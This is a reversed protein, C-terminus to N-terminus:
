QNTGERRALAKQLEAELWKEQHNRTWEDIEDFTADDPPYDYGPYWRLRHYDALTDMENEDLQRVRVVDLAKNIALVPDSNLEEQIYNGLKAPNHTEKDWTKLAREVMDLTIDSNEAMRKVAINILHDHDRYKGPLISTVLERVQPRVERKRAQIDQTSSSTVDQSTQSPDVELRTNNNKTKDNTKNTTRRASLDSTGTASLGKDTDHVLGTRDKDTQHVLQGHLTLSAHEAETLKRSSHAYYECSTRGTKHIAVWRHDSLNKLAPYVTKRDLNLAEAISEASAEWGDIHRWIQESVAHAFATLSRDDILENPLRTFNKTPGEKNDIWRIPNRHNRQTL